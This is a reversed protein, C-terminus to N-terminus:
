EVIVLQLDSWRCAKMALEKQSSTAAPNGLVTKVNDYESVYIGGWVAGQQKDTMAKQGACGSVVVVMALLVFLMLNVRNKM